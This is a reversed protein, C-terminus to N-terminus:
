STSVIRKWVAGYKGAIKEWSYNNIVYERAQDGKKGLEDRKGEFRSLERIWAGANGSPLLRGNVNDRVAGPIGDVDAAFSYLGSIGAELLVIGFGEVDGEVPINPMIFADSGRYLLRLLDDDVGGLIRVKAMGRAAENIENRHPGDGALILTTKKLSPQVQRLFWAAGKRKVLRGVSLLILEDADINFRRALEERGRKKDTEKADDVAIGNPIVACRRADCGCALCLKRTNESISIVRDAKRISPIVAARYLKNRYTLDLGHVTLTYPKKKIKSLLWGVPALLGDGLHIVDCQTGMGRFLAYPVFWVLHYQAKGLAILEIDLTKRLETVLDYNVKQMGGISPPYKRTIYLIRM